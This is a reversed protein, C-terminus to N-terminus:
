RHPPFPRQFRAPILWHRTLDPTAGECGPNDAKKLICTLPSVVHRGRGDAGHQEASGNCGANADAIRDARLRV